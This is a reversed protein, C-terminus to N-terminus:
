KVPTGLITELRPLMGIGDKTFAANQCMDYGPLHNGEVLAPGEPMIAVDWGVYGVHPEVLAAECCMACAEEFYPIHFGAFSTHTFPHKKYYEGTKDCFAVDSLVGHGDVMTYLGGSSINDVAKVGNGMRLLAYLVQAKGDVLLTVIRVTNISRECLRNMQEHQRLTEEVLLQGAHVLREYLVRYDIGPSLAIKEVGQGGFSGPTKVFVTERGRCFAELEKAKGEYLVMYDRHLYSAFRQNFVIKNQFCRYYDSNNLKRALALNHNMTMYTKRRKGRIKAFGFVRYDLYGVGYHLACWVMDFFTRIRSVGTEEHIQGIYMFMRRLSMSGVRRFFVRIKGLM